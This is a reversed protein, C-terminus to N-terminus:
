GPQRLAEEPGEQHLGAPTETVLKGNEDLYEVREAVITAGVGDVYIKRPPEEDPKITIDPPEGDVIVEDDGPEPPIPDGNEDSPRCTMPRSSPTM